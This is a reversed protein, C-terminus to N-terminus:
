AAHRGPLTAQTKDQQTQRDRQPKEVIVRPVATSRAYAVASTVLGGTGIVSVVFVPILPILPIVFLAGVVVHILFVLGSLGVAILARLPYRVRVPEFAVKSM